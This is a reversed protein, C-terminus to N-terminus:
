LSVIDSVSVQTTLLCLEISFKSESNAIAQLYKPMLIM